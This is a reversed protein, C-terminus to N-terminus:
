ARRWVVFFVLEVGVLMLLYTEPEPVAHVVNKEVPELGAIKYQAKTELVVSGTVPTVLQYKTALEVAL